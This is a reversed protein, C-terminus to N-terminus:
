TRAPAATKKGHIGGALLVKAGNKAGENRATRLGLSGSLLLEQAHCLVIDVALTKIEGLNWGGDLDRVEDLHLLAGVVAEQLHVFQGALAFVAPQLRHKLRHKRNGVEAVDRLQLEHIEGDAVPLALAAVQFPQMVQARSTLAASRRHNGVRKMGAFNEAVLAARIVRISGVEAVLAAVRHSQLQLVVHRFAFLAAHGVGRRQFDRHPEGDPILVLGAVAGDAVDLLLFNEEAVNGQHRLVAGEDDITSLADDDALQMAGRAHEELRGRVTRVKQSLDNGVASRPNLEFVVLLVNQIHADVALAFEQTRNKQAGEAQTGAFVNQLSEIGRVAEHDAVLLQEPREIRGAFFRRVQQTHLQRVADLRLRAIFHRMGAALDAGRRQFFNLLRLDAFDFHIDAVEFARPRCTVNDVGGGSFHQEFRVRFDRGVFNGLDQFRAHDLQAYEEGLAVVHARHDALRQPAIRDGTRRFGQNFDVALQARAIRRRQIRRRRQELAHEEIRALVIERAHAPELEVDLQKLILFRGAEILARKIRVIKVRRDLVQQFQALIDARNVVDIVEAIATHTGDAFQQFVLEADAQDAHFPRDFFFHGHVLFHRRRHRVVQDVGLRHHGRDAFEESRRLQRLEHVLGVRQRFDRM